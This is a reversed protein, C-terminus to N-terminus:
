LLNRDERLQDVEQQADTKMIGRLIGYMSGKKSPTKYAIIQTQLFKFLDLRDKMNLNAIEKEIKQLEPSM